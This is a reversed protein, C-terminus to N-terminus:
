NAAEKVIVRKPNSRDYHLREWVGNSGETVDAQSVGSWHVKLYSDASDGFVKARGPEFNTLAALYQEPTL